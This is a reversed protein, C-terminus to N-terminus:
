TIINNRIFFAVLHAASKLDFIFTLRQIHSEINRDSCKLQAAIEKPRLGNSLMQVIKVQIESIRVNVTKPISIRPTDVKIM